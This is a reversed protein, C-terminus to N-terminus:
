DLTTLTSQTVVREARSANPQWISLKLSKVTWTKHHLPSLARGGWRTHPSISAKSCEFHRRAGFDRQQAEPPHITFALQELGHNTASAALM